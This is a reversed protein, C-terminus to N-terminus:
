RHEDLVLCRELVGDERLILHPPKQHKLGDLRHWEQTIRANYHQKISSERYPDFGCEAAMNLLAEEMREYYAAIQKECHAIQMDVSALHDRFAEPAM